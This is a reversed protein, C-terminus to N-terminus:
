PLKSFLLLSWPRLVTDNQSFFFSTNTTHPTLVFFGLLLNIYKRAACALVLSMSLSIRGKQLLFGAYARRIDNKSVGPIQVYVSNRSLKSVSDLSCRLRNKPIFCMNGQIEMKSVGSWLFRNQHVHFIRANLFDNWRGRNSKLSASPFFMLEKISLKPLLFFLGPFLIEDLSCSLSEQLFFFYKSHHTSYSSFCGRPLKYVEGLRGSFGVRVHVSKRFVRSASHFHIIIFEGIASYLLLKGISLKSWLVCRICGCFRWNICFIQEKECCIGRVIWWM